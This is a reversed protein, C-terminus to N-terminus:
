RVASPKPGEAGGELRSRRLRDIEHVFVRTLTGAAQQAQFLQLAREHWVRASALDGAIRYAEGRQESAWAQLETANANQSCIKLLRGSIALQEAASRLAGVADKLRIQSGALARWIEGYNIDNEYAPQAAILERFGDVAKRFWAEALLDDGGAAEVKGRIFYAVALERRAAAMNPDARSVEELIGRAYEIRLRAERTRRLALLPGVLNMSRIGANMERWPNKPSNARIWESLQVAKGFEALGKEQDDLALAYVKGLRTHAGALPQKRDTNGSDETALKERIALDKRYDSLATQADGLNQYGPNGTVDGLEEYADAVAERLDRDAPNLQLLVESLQVSKHAYEAAGLLEGLSMMLDATQSYIQALRRGLQLDGPARQYLPTLIAEAKKATALAGPRDGLNVQSVGQLLAFREYADALKIGVERDQLEGTSTRALYDIGRNLILQRAGTSGPLDSIADNVEFMLSESLRRVDQLNRNAIQAQRWSALSGGLVALLVLTGAVVSIRNRRLFKSTRYLQTDPRASVPYGTLYNQIDRAFQEASSYRRSPEKRLAMRLITELDPDLRKHPALLLPSQTTIAEALGLPGTPARYPLRSTLIQYLLVGLTYIDSASGAPEGKVQEPSAYEPTLAAAGTKTRAATGDSLTAIGFDLVKPQGDATVLINAPKLDRHAVLNSHTYAVALCIKQFLRLRDEQSLKAQAVYDTLNIGDVYEMVLFPVGGPTTGGDLLRAINPHELRALIRREQVFRIAAVKDDPAAQLIKVAVIQPLDKEIREARFVVGMGGYGIQQLLRYRGFEASDSGEAQRLTHLYAEQALAGEQWGPHQQAAESALMLAEIEEKLAPDGATAQELYSARDKGAPLESVEHFLKEIREFQNM